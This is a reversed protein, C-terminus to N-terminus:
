PVAPGPGDAGVGPAGPGPRPRFPTLPAASGAARGEPIAGDILGRILLPPTLNLLNGVVIAAAVLAVLRRYPRFCGLAGRWIRRNVDSLRLTRTPEAWAAARRIDGPRLYPKWSRFQVGRCDRPAAQADAEV